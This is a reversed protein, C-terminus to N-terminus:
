RARALRKIQILSMTRALIQQQLEIPMLSAEPQRRIAGQASRGRRKPPLMFVPTAAETPATDVPMSVIIPQPDSALGPCGTCSLCPLREVQAPKGARAPRHALGVRNIECQRKSIRANMPICPYLQLEM